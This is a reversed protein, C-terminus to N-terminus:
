CWILSLEVAQCLKCPRPMKAHEKHQGSGFAIRHRQTSKRGQCWKESAASLGPVASLM